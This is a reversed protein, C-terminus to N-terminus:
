KDSKFEMEAKEWADYLGEYADSFGKKMHEWADASSDKWSGYWEALEIRQKRLTRLSARAQERAAENMQDWSDDIRTELEDIRQDLKALAEKTKQVAEDRQAAGYGKLAELLNQAEQKVDQITVKDSGTEAHSVPAFGLVAFLLLTFTLPNVKM